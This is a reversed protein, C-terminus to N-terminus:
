MMNSIKVAAGWREKLGTCKLTEGRDNGVAGILNSKAQHPVGEQSGCGSAHNPFGHRVQLGELVDM